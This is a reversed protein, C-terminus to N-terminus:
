EASRLLTGPNIETLLSSRSASPPLHSAAMAVSVVDNRLTDFHGRMNKCATAEDMEFIAKMIQEHEAITISMLGPHFTAELRYCELRNGLDTTQAILYGNHSAAYISQHFRANASYFAEPNTSRAADECARHAAAIFNRDRTNHRRAAFAACGAELLAMAEFMEVLDIISLTSVFAGAHARIEILRKSALLRLAERVPTRSAGFRTALSDEDLKAGPRLKGSIIDRELAARISDTLTLASNRRSDTSVM